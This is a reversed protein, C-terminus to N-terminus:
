KRNKLEENIKRILVLIEEESGALRTTYDVRDLLELSENLANSIIVLEKKTYEM